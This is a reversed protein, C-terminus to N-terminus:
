KKGKKPNKKIKTPRWATVNKVEYSKRKKAM